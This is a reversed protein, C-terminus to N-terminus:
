EISDRLECSAVRLEYSGRERSSGDVWRAQRQETAIMALGRRMEEELAGHSCQMPRPSGHAGISAEKCVPGLSSRCSSVSM